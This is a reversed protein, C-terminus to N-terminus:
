VIVSVIFWYVHQKRNFDDQEWNAKLVYSMKCLLTAVCQLHPLIKVITNNCIKKQNQYHFLKTFWNINSLTFAYLFKHWIKQAVKYQWVNLKRIVAPNLQNEKWVASLCACISLCSVHLWIVSVGILWGVWIEALPAPTIVLISRYNAGCLSM